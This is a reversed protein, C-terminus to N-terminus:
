GDEGMVSTRLSLGAETSDLVSKLASAFLIYTINFSFVITESSVPWTVEGMDLIGGGALNKSREKRIHHDLILDNALIITRPNFLSSVDLPEGYGNNANLLQYGGGMFPPFFDNSLQASSLSASYLAVVLASIAIYVERLM